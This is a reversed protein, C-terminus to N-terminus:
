PSKPPDSDFFLAWWLTWPEPTPPSTQMEIFPQPTPTTETQRAIALPIVLVEGPRVMKGEQRAWQEVFADSQAYDFEALLADHEQQLVEIEAQVSQYYAQLPRSATIRTSFNIALILGIALIAAFMIQVGSLQNPRHHARDLLSVRRLAEIARQRRQRARTYSLPLEVNKLATTRPLLEFSQFVFGIMRGRIRALKSQSLKSVDQGKLRYVGGTPVDLCGLINLLTSKGSGSAGMIAVYENERITLTMGRLAHVLETGVRYVKHLDLLEIVPAPPTVPSHAIM